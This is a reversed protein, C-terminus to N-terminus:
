STLSCSALNQPALIRNPILWNVKNQTKARAQHKICSAQQKIGVYWLTSLIWTCLMLTDIQSHPKSKVEGVM